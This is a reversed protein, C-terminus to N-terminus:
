IYENESCMVNPLLCDSCMCENTKLHSPSSMANRRKNRREPETGANKKKKYKKKKKKKTSNCM